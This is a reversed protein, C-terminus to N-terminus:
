EATANGVKAQVQGSDCRDSRPASDCKCRGREPGGRDRCGAHGVLRTQRRWLAAGPSSYRHQYMGRTARRMVRQESRSVCWVSGLAAVGRRRLVYEASQVCQRRGAAQCRAEGGIKGPRTVANQPSGVEDAWGPLGADIRGSWWLGFESRGFCHFGTRAQLRRRCQGALLRQTTSAWRRCHQMAHTLHRSQFAKGRLHYRQGGCM